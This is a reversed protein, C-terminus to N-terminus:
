RGVDFATSTETTEFSLCGRISDGTCCTMSTLRHPFTGNTLSSCSAYCVGFIEDQTSNCAKPKSPCSVNGYPSVAGSGGIGFGDCVLATGVSGKQNSFGCPQNSCCTWTSTRIPYQGNTMITCRKYCLGAYLEEDKECAQGMGFAGGFGQPVAPASSTSALGGAETLNTSPAHPQSPTSPDGDGGGGGVNFLPNTDDNRFDMCGSGTTSCCTWPGIRNSFSGNTLISCKGFCQGFLMEEDLLCAGPGHPCGGGIGVDFGDCLVQTGVSGKQNSPGCPHNECCTWSSTRIPYTGNTLLSCKMYCLEAYMEENKTCINNDHMNEVPFLPNWTSTTVPAVTPSKKIVEAVPINLSSLESKPPERPPPPPTGSLSKAFCAVVIALLAIGGILMQIDKRHWWKLQEEEEEEEEEDSWEEDSHPDALKDSPRGVQVERADRQFTPAEPDRDYGLQRQQRGQDGGQPGSYGSPGQYSM